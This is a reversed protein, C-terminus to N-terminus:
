NLTMNAKHLYKLPIDKHTNTQRGQNTGTM